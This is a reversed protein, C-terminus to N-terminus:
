TAKKRLKSQPKNPHKKTGKHPHNGRALSNTRASSVPASRGAWLCVFIAIKEAEIQTAITAAELHNDFFLHFNLCKEFFNGM